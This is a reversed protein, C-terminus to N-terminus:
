LIEGRRHSCRGTGTSLQWCVQAQQPDIQDSSRTWWAEALTPVVTPAAAVGAATQVPQITATAVPRLTATPVVLPTRAGAGAVTPTAVPAVAAATTPAATSLPAVPAPATSPQTLFWRTVGLFVVLGVAVILAALGWPRGGSGTPEGGSSTTKTPTRIQM